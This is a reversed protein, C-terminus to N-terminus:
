VWLRFKRCVAFAVLGLGIALACSTPEPVPALQLSAGSMQGWLPTVGSDGSSITTTGPPDIPFVWSGGSGSQSPNNFLGYQQVNGFGVGPAANDSTQFAWLYIPNGTFGTLDGTAQGWFNGAIFPPPPGSGNVAVSDYQHWHALLSSLDGANATVSFGGVADFYGIEVLNGNPVGIGSSNVVNGTYSVLAAAEALASSLVFAVLVGLFKIRM